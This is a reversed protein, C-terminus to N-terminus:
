DDKGNPVKRVPREALFAQIERLSALNLQVRRFNHNRQKIAEGLEVFIQPDFFTLIVSEGCNNCNKRNKGTPYGCNTCRTGTGWYKDPISPYINDKFEWPCIFDIIWGTDNEDPISSVKRVVRDDDEMSVVLHPENLLYEFLVMKKEHSYSFRNMYDKAREETLETVQEAKIRSFNSGGLIMGNTASNWLAFDKM